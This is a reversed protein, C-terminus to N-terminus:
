GEGRLGELWAKYGMEFEAMQQWDLWHIHIRIHAPTEQRLLKEVFRRFPENNPNETNFRGAWNPLVYSIQLSFPDKQSVFELLISDQMSEESRPRLLLHEVLHFNEVTQDYYHQQIFSRVLEAQASAAAASSFDTKRAISTGEYMFELQHGSAHASVQWNAADRGHAILLHMMRRALEPTSYAEASSLLLVDQEDRLEWQWSEPQQGPLLRLWEGTSAIYTRSEDAIGLMRCLRLKLGSVNQTDWSEQQYNFARNRGASLRPYDRLFAKKDEVLKSDAAQVGGSLAGYLLLSYETFQEAFRAMLHNLFRNKRALATWRSEAMQELRDAYTEPRTLLKKLGPVRGVLSQVFYSQQDDADFSFLRPAQALQAFYNALLQEFFLLYAKLQRAQAVRKQSATSPLGKENIGYVDPFHHQISTYSQVKRMSGLQPRYDREHGQLMRRATQRRLTEYHQRARAHAPQIPLTGKFLRIHGDLLQYRPTKERDLRLVWESHQSQSLLSISRVVEVGPVDMIAQILDSSRLEHKRNFAALEEDKIFGHQLVPGEMIDEIAMGSDLMEQLSYFRISPSILQFIAFYIEGLVREAEEVEGIEIDALIQVDEQPLVRIEAFDMCLSRNTHLRQKVVPLVNAGAEQAILVKYMGQIRLVESTPAATTGIQGDYPHYYLRNELPDVAELWANQVGPVDILLKRYDTLTVPGCSLITAPSYLDKYAREGGYSTLLDPLRYGMRYGLDTLAYCLQEWITIGPDHPNHDTWRHGALRQFHQIGAQRLLEYDQLSSAPPANSITLPSQM